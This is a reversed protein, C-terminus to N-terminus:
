TTENNEGEGGFKKNLLDYDTRFISRDSLKKMRKFGSFYLYSVFLIFIIWLWEKEAMLIFDYM